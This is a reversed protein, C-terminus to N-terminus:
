VYLLGRSYVPGLLIAGPEFVAGTVCGRLSPGMFRQTHLCADKDKHKFRGYNPPVSYLQLVM